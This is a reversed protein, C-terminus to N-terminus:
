TARADATRRYGYVQILLSKAQGLAEILSEDHTALRAGGTDTSLYTDRPFVQVLRKM